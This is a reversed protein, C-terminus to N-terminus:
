WVRGRGRIIRDGYRGGGEAAAHDARIGLIDLASQGWWQRSLHMGPKREEALCLDM